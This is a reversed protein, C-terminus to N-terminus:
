MYSPSLWFVKCMSEPKQTCIQFRNLRHSTMRVPCRFKWVKWGFKVGAPEPCIIYIQSLFFVFLFLVSPFIFWLSMCKVSKLPADNHLACPRNGKWYSVDTPIKSHPLTKAFILYLYVVIAFTFRICQIFM